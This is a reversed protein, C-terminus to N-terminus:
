AARRRDAARRRAALRRGRPRPVQRPAHGCLSGSEVPTSRFSSSSRRAARPSGPKRARWTHSHVARPARTRRRSSSGAAPAARRLQGVLHRERRQCSSCSARRSAVAGRLASKPGGVAPRDLRHQHAVAVAAAREAERALRAAREGAGEAGGAPHLEAAVEGRRLDEVLREVEAARARDVCATNMPMPSGSIFRSVTSAAQSRRGSM